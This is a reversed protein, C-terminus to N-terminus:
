TEFFTAAQQDITPRQLVMACNEFRLTTFCRVREPGWAFPDFPPNETPAVLTGFPAYIPRPVHAQTSVYGCGLLVFRIQDM